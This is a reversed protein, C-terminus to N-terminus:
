REYQTLFFGLVLFESRADFRFSVNSRLRPRSFFSSFAESTNNESRKM